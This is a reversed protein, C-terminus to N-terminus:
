TSLSLLHLGVQANGGTEKDIWECFGKESCFGSSQHKTKQQKHAFPNLKTQYCYSYVDYLNRDMRPKGEPTWWYEAEVLFFM